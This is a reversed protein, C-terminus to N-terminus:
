EAAQAAQEDAESQQRAWMDAYLGSRRLLQAHTGREVIRGENLVVIQDADVITSLRHAIVISTRKAAVDRLTEQIAAETRSDLASTAEDLILIPPDKLLTRAIAVRQKEGGSLKLGREGVMAGYGDPLGAIFAHIAAGRAAAEIEAQGAGERGYGINYGVTDNFLVSDQPVIGIAARLSKQTVAAIDQGDITIRGATPEYFRFLLRSLTSKGAGSPGVVALMTGPAVDIDIGKLIEREPDYGFRVDEFRVRGATVALDAAGPADTVEAPTDILDFMAEMDILGQRITRYVWGLMDLPRFLQALFTNVFVVDGTTFEGRSWGWVTYAMAGAMMLNTIFSQGINLWALSTENRVAADAFARMAQGYRAAERDEAGFYKVTEYNLLSDVARAIAQNDVENMRRQLHTRWETVLRTFAIYAVVMVLTAAVLGAGFKVGFIICVAALEIITPAINFLLFYLMMDISKTGREVIKTLAGTRRELHFRLSLAHIHRFVTEALRRAADQGVREFIANRLNDFLVGGFRAGAYGVVLAIALGAAPTIGHSMRDIAGKYAFPMLLTAGKALFVLVVALVVRARLAPEGAPWLWPLFRRLAGWGARPTTDSSELPRM